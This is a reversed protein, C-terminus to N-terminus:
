VDPNCVTKLMCDHVQGSTPGHLNVRKKKSRLDDWFKLRSLMDRVNIQDRLPVQLVLRGCLGQGRGHGEM